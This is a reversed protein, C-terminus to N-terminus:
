IDEVKLVPTEQTKLACELLIMMLLWKLKNSLTLSHQFSNRVTCTGSTPIGIFDSLHSAVFSFLLLAARPMVIM